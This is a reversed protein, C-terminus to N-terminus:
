APVAWKLIQDRLQDKAVGIAELTRELGPIVFKSDSALVAKLHDDRYNPVAAKLLQHLGKAIKLYGEPKKSVGVRILAAGCGFYLIAVIHHISQKTHESQEEDDNANKEKTNGIQRIQNELQEIACSAKAVVANAFWKPEFSLLVELCDLAIEILYRHQNPKEHEVILNLVLDLARNVEAEAGENNLDFKKLLLAKRRLYLAAQFVNGRKLAAASAKDLADYTYSLLLTGTREFGDALVAYADEYSLVDDRNENKAVGDDLFKIAADILKMMQAHQNQLLVPQGNSQLELSIATWHERFSWARALNCCFASRDAFSFDSDALLRGSEYFAIGEAITEDFYKQAGEVKLYMGSLARFLRCQMQHPRKMNRLARPTELVITSSAYISQMTQKADTDGEKWLTLLGSAYSAITSGQQTGWNVEDNALKINNNNLNAIDTFDFGLTATLITKVENLLPKALISPGGCFMTYIASLIALLSEETYYGFAARAILMTMECSHVRLKRYEGNAGMMSDICMATDFISAKVPDVVTGVPSDEGFREIIEVFDDLNVGIKRFCRKMKDICISAAHNM